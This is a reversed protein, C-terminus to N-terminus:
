CSNTSNMKVDSRAKDVMVTQVLPSPHSVIKSDTPRISQIYKELSSSEQLVATVFNMIVGFSVCSRSEDTRFHAIITGSMKLFTLFANLIDLLDCNCMGYLWNLDYANAKNDNPGARPDVDYVVPHM